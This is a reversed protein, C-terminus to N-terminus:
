NDFWFVIRLDEPKTRPEFYELKNQIVNHYFDECVIKIPTPLMVEYTKETPETWREGGDEAAVDSAYIDMLVDTWPEKVINHLWYDMVYPPKYESIWEGQVFKGKQSIKKDRVFKYFDLQKKTIRYYLPFWSEGWSISKLDTLTLYSASHADSGWKEYLQRINPSADKPFGKVEFKQEITYHSRVGALVSFLIYNRGDQYTRFQSPVDRFRDKEKDEPNVTIIPETSTWIGNIRRETYMHIDCGM